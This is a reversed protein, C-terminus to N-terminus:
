RHGCREGIWVPVCKGIGELGHNDGEHDRHRRTGENGFTEHDGGSGHGGGQTALVQQHTTGLRTTLKGNTKLDTGWHWDGSSNQVVGRISQQARAEGAGCFRFAPRRLRTLTVADQGVLRQIM